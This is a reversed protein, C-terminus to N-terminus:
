YYFLIRIGYYVKRVNDLEKNFPKSKMEETFMHNNGIWWEQKLNNNWLKFLFTISILLSFELYQLKHKYYSLIM